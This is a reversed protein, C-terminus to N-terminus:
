TPRANMNATVEEQRYPLRDNFDSSPILNALDSPGSGHGRVDIGGDPYRRLDGLCQSDAM